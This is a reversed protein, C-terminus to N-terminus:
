KQTLREIAELSHFIYEDWSMLRSCKVLEGSSGEGVAQRIEKCLIHRLCLGDTLHTRMKLVVLHALYQLLVGGACYHCDVFINM